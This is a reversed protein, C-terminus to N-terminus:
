LKDQILSTPSLSRGKPLGLPRDRHLLVWDANEVLAEEGLERIVRRAAPENGAALYERLRHAARDFIQWSGDKTVKEFEVAM